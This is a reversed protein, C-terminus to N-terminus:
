IFTGWCHGSFFNRFCVLFYSNCMTLRLSHLCCFKCTLLFVGFINTSKQNNKPNGHGSTTKILHSEERQAENDKPTDLEM